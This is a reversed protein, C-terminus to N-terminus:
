ALTEPKVIHTKSNIRKGKYTECVYGRTAGCTVDNWMGFTNQSTAWVEACLDQFTFRIKKKM